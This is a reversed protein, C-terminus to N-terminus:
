QFFNNRNRKTAQDTHPLVSQIKEVNKLFHAAISSVNPPRPPIGTKAKLAKKCLVKYDIVRQFDAPPIEAYLEAAAKGGELPISSLLGCKKFLKQRSIVNYATQCFDTGRFRGHGILLCHRVYEPFSIPNERHESFTGVNGPWLQPFNLNLSNPDRVSLIKSSSKVVHTCMAKLSALLENAEGEASQQPLSSTEFTQHVGEDIKNSHILNLGGTPLIQTSVPHPATGPLFM